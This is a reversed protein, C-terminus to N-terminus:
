SIKSSGIRKNATDHSFMNLQRGDDWLSDLLIVFILCVFERGLVGHSLIEMFKTSDNIAIVGHVTCVGSTTYIYKHVTCVCVYMFNVDLCMWLLLLLFTIAVAIQFIKMWQPKMTPMCSDCLTHSKCTTYVTSSGSYQITYM